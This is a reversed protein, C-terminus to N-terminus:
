TAEMLRPASGDRPSKERARGAESERRGRRRTARPRAVPRQTAPRIVDFAATAADGSTFAVAAAAAVMSLWKRSKRLAM